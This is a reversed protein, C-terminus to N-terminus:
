SLQTDPCLGADEPSVALPCSPSGQCSSGLVSWPGLEPQIHGLHTDM